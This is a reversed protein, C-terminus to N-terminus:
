ICLLIGFRCWCFILGKAARQQLNLSVHELTGRGDETHRYRVQNLILTHQLNIQGGQSDAASVLEAERLSEARARGQYIDSPAPGVEESDMDESPIQKLRPKESTKSMLKFVCIIIWKAKNM